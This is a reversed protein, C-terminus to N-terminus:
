RAGRLGADYGRQATWRQVQVHTPPTGSRSRLGAAALERAVASLSLGRARLRRARAIVRQEREVRRFGNGVRRWGFPPDGGASKGTRQRHLVASRTREAVTEREWQSVSALVNLLLRGGASATDISENLSVLQARGEGFHTALLTGLDRVSRTLRDLSTVLLVDADQKLMGLARQLGPRDLTAASKGRDVIVEVLAFGRAKALARLRAQQDALSLGHAAQKELSVRAYIVARPKKEPQPRLRPM